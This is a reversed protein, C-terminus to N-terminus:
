RRVSNWRPFVLTAPGDSIFVYPNTHLSEFEADSLARNWIYTFALPNGWSETLNDINGLVSPTASAVPTDTNTINEVQSAAGTTQNKYHFKVNGGRPAAIGCTYVDGNTPLGVTQIHVVNRITWVWTNADHIGWAYSDIGTGAIAGAFHFLTNALVPGGFFVSVAGNGHSLGGEGFGAYATAGAAFGLAAGGLAASTTWAAGNTLAGTTATKLDIVAGAAQNLLMCHVLGSALAHGTNVTASLSPKSPLNPM